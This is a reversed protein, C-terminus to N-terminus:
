HEVLFIGKIKLDSKAECELEFEFGVLLLSRVGKTLHQYILAKHTKRVLRGVDVAFMM